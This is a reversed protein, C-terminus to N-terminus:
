AAVATAEPKTLAARQAVHKLALDRHYLCRVEAHNEKRSGASPINHRARYTTTATSSRGIRNRNWKRNKKGGRRAMGSPSGM